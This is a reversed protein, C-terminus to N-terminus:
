GIDYRQFLRDWENLIAPLSYREHVSAAARAGQELRLQRDAMLRGLGALLASEDNLPVLTAIQGHQSIEAPGSPCDYVVAPIGLGLAELLANPFGEFRSTMVFIDANALQELPQKTDGCFEIRTRCDQQSALLELAQRRPGDGWIQLRWDPFDAALLGFARIIHETQKGETLRGLTIIVGQASTRSRAYDTQEFPLPNAMVHVHRVNNFLRDVKAAVADTQVTLASAYQYLHKCVFRWIWPQPFFEPDTRESIIVPLDMGCTALLALVNASPLFSLVLDPQQRQLHTRLKVFRALSGTRQGLWCDLPEALYVVKIRPDLQFFCPDRGSYTAYLSVSYGRNVWANSLTTAVREAGGFQLSSVLFAINM